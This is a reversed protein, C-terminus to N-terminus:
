VTCSVQGHGLIFNSNCDNDGLSHEEEDVAANAVAIDDECDDSDTVITVLYVSTLNM